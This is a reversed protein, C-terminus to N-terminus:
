GDGALEGEGRAILSDGMAVEGGSVVVATIGGHGRMAQYGGPGLTEEMRSCPVCLGTGQLVAGGLEFTQDKLSLLNIGSVVINRRPLDPTVSERRCLAAVVPLHEFQILTVQRQSPRGSKAHHDGAIGRGPEIRAVEVARIPGLPAPSVGIWEVRGTHPNDALLKRFEM